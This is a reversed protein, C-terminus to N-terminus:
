EEKKICNNCWGHKPTENDDIEKVTFTSQRNLYFRLGDTSPTTGCLTGEDKIKHNVTFYAIYDSAVQQGIEEIYEM